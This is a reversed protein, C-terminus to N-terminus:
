ENIVEVLLKGGYVILLLGIWKGLYLISTLGIVIATIALVTRIKLRLKSDKPKFKEPPAYSLQQRGINTPIIIKHRAATRVQTM